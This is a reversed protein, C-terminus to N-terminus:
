KASIWPVYRDVHSSPTFFFGAVLGYLVTADDVRQLIELDLYLAEVDGTSDADIRVLRADAPPGLGPEVVPLVALGAHLYRPLVSEEEDVVLHLLVLPQLVVEGLLHLDVVVGDLLRAPLEQLM